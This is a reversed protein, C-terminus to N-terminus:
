FEVMQMFLQMFLWTFLQMFLQEVHTVVATDRTTCLSM